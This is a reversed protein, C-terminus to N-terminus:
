LRRTNATVVLYVGCVVLVGGVAEVIGLSEGRLLWSFFVGFVPILYAVTIARTPGVNAILRFYMLFAIATCFM